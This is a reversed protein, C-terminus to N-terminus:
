QILLLSFPIIGLILWLISRKDHWLYALSVVFLLWTQWSVLSKLAFQLTVALLLGIFGTSFGKIVVRTLKMKKIKAHVSSLAIMTGIPPLFIALTSVAAGWLGNVKYGVFAATTSVPGPTIQGLAIGDRFETLNLWQSIDVVHQQMLPIAAYGGGFAFLGINFFSLFLSRLLGSAILIAGIVLLLLALPLFDILRVGRELHVPTHLEDPGKTEREEEFEHTFHFFLIGLLGSLLILEITNIKLFFLGVFVFAAIIVGKIERIDKKRFITQGLHVVAHTLLAVVLAGLGTMVSKMSPLHGYNFYIWSLIVITIASPLIYFLPMLIGGWFKQLRYGIYGMMGVGTAGPLIQALSLVDVFEHEHMWGHRHVVSKKITVLNAPGGYAIAGLHLAEKCLNFLSPHKM